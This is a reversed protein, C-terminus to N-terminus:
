RKARTIPHNPKFTGDLYGGIIHKDYHYLVEKEAGHGNLDLFQEHAEAKSLPLISLMLVSAVLTMTFKKM